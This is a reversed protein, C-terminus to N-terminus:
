AFSNGLASSYGRPLRFTFTMLRSSKIVTLCCTFRSLSARDFVEILLVIMVNHVIALLMLERCQAWYSRTTLECTLNRKTMSFVTESQWRQGYQSPGLVRRMQRRYYGSPPKNTPRGSLPPILSVIGHEERAYVHNAESDFGADGLVSHLTFGHPLRDLLPGFTPQDPRPGRGPRAALILHTACDCLLSLKPFRRYTTTQYLPNKAGKPGRERRRVFYSSVHRTELGSSDVAGRRIHRRRGMMLRICAHLLKEDRGCRFLRQAAKQLTSHDPVTTLGIVEGIGPFDRLLQEVGRYDLSLLVKLALVAFLQPQTFKKPSNPHSYASLADTGIKWAVLM